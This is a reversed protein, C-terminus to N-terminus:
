FHDQDSEDDEVDQISSYPRMGANAPYAAAQPPAIAVPPNTSTAATTHRPAFYQNYARSQQAQQQRQRLMTQYSAPNAGFAVAAQLSLALPRLFM